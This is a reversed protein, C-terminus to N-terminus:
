TRELAARGAATLSYRDVPGSRASAVLGLDQLSLLTAELKIPSLHPGPGFYLELDAMLSFADADGRTLTRGVARRFDARPIRALFFVALARELRAQLTFVVPAALLLAIGPPVFLLAQRVTHVRWNGLDTGPVGFGVLFPQVLGYFVGAGVVSVAISFSAVGTPFRVLLYALERWTTGSRVQGALRRWLVGEGRERTVRPMSAGLLSAALTREFQALGRCAVIALVLIPIGVVTVALGLGVSLGTVLFVFYFTGLPLGLLAYALGLYTGRAFFPRLVTEAFTPSRFQTSM